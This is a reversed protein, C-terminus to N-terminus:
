FRYRALRGRLSLLDLRLFSRQSILSARGPDDLPRAALEANIDSIESKVQRIEQSIRHWSRGRANATQLADLDATCVPNLPRGKQGIEYANAPTCYHKLGAKRGKRWPSAKPAIGHRNCAKAHQIIFDASRGAAGDRLGIDHWNGSRCQSENLTACGALLAFAPILFLCRMPAM